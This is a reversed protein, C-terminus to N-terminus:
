EDADYATTGSHTKGTGCGGISDPKQGDKNPCSQVRRIADGLLAIAPKEYKM